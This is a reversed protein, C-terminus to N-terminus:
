VEFDMTISSAANIKMYNKVMNCHYEDCQYVDLCDWDNVLVELMVDYSRASHLQDIYVAIDVLCPVNEKMNMLVDKAEKCKQESGDKLKFCVIHKVM